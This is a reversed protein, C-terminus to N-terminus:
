SSGGESTSVGAVEETANVFIVGDAAVVGRGRPLVFLPNIEAEQLVDGTAVVMDSFAIIADALAEVDAAPRGRYGKLLASTKLEDIMACAEGRSVPALRLTTDRYLEAAVGGMGLLIVPGLQADHHFGLILEIGGRILEQVLFGDPKGGKAAAFRKAIEACVGAVDAPPVDVAVGGAESKHLLDRSLVKVVVNGPFTKAAAAAEDPTRAVVERTVPIGFRSFLQKSEAEDLAGPRLLARIEQTLAPIGKASGAVPTAKGMRRLAALAAACSEPAAFTPVGALNLTRILHPADPSAFGVVPKDSAAACARLPAGATEPERLASSGLVVAVADYTPSAAVADLVARFTDPKVGALTVDIPNRDLTTGEIALAKLTAATAADPPPTELGLMGAADALLSAAGGTSTIIAVRRGKLKRGRSLALPIDLLDSYREARIVDFQKFMANYAADSGALAGTHSVASRAGAESRGVKFAVVPKGAAHARLVAAQFAKANRLGELYLAIVKTAPDHVLHDIFDSVELDCENGTAVLKSFGIGAAQARSLLSGLIGGSQSVLAINGAIIEDTVLANSASLVIGESVNVLGITNPGLLRMAGAARRLEEQRARGEPGSEGFGSALVIAARTGIVALQRVADLVRSGGLLVIAADPAHPLAAIDPYCRHAGITEYRPNVPYIDGTFGYKELYALPRGTLKATDASAGVIAVSRPRLLAELSAM